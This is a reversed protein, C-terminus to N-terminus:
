RRRNRVMTVAEDIERDLVRLPVGKTRRHAKRVFQWGREAIAAKEADSLHSPNTIKCLVRGDLELEIDGRDIPLSRLFAKVARSTKDAKIRQM